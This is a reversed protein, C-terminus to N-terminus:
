YMIKWKYGNFNDFNHKLRYRLTGKNLNCFEAVDEYGLWEKIINGIDDLQLIIIKKLSNKIKLKTASNHNFNLRPAIGKKSNSIKDKTEQSHYKCISYPNTPLINYGYNDNHVNLINCWYHELSCMHEVECEELIEFIFNEKGYKNFAKQLKDNDHNGKKLHYFHKYNRREMFSSFGLYIKNNIKNTITYIGSKM